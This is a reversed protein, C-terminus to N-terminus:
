ARRRVPRPHPGAGRSEARLRVAPRRLLVPPRTGRVGVWKRTRAETYAFGSLFSMLELSPPLSKTSMVTCGIVRAPTRDSFGPHLVPTLKGRRGIWYRNPGAFWDWTRGGSACGATNRIM